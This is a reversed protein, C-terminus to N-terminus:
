EDCEMRAFLGPGFRESMQAVHIEYPGSLGDAAKQGATYTWAPTGLTIERLVQTGQQVRLLYLEYSENLPVDTGQWSDGDIRTRRLWNVMTGGAGDPQARLHAPTYPRLGNGAFALQYSQYSPDEYGRLAPGIRYQRALGRAASPLGIQRLADNILVWQSGAPWDRILPETGAQGRLRLALEYTQPAVLTAEAFQFLEWNDPSGDGIAALNAGNLVSAMSASSLVGQTLEVRLPAGRDWLHPEAAGLATRTVGSIAWGTMVTNLAFEAEGDSMYVAASGPWPDATVALHPAHPVEDGRLLPLDMFMAYVPLPAAFATMPTTERTVWPSPIYLEPEVRVAEIEQMIGQTVHDIRYREPGSDAGAGAVEIVDGAGCEARSPPLALRVTDRAVRAEALWREVIQRAEAETLVLPMDIRSVLRNEEDPFVAEHNVTEFGGQASLSTLRVRGAVEAEPACIREMLGDSGESLALQAPDIRADRRGDRSKFVLQGDREVADIGHALMLPQLLARADRMDDSSYGRLGGWLGSVDVAEVGSRACIERVVDALTRASSRGNLWHGRDYNEGDGWLDQAQPFAPWPRADWAWVHAQSMDVMRGAYLDSAPNKAPDSWYRHMAKLYQVQIFDDRQGTSARPLSSESSKPDLFKNPQNTGKDVAACGMETFWIPKSRPVWPSATAARLGGVRDHHPQSWWNRLDKVRWVWPEGYAGDTIPTRIQAAEHADHAYYWDYGEGGEINAMLYELNYISGHDADAHDEGERWDSLPMYNDIGIFDIVPDAWLPDLHYYLNGDRQCGWYESWDAAYSIKCAPGVIARVDAALARLAEVAPFGSAGRVTSLAVFESGICFAEVGGAAVCLHAYHLIMRRYSWEEPGTYTVSEGERQFDSPQAMGFFTAVESEAQATGDPSGNLGPALSTTIRGRWPLVPQGVANRWPDILLNGEMQDMLLFPYFMVSQGAAQLAQIAQVVSRDTPTGGYIGRGDGDRPVVQAQARTLGSVQWPQSDSDRDQQEVKPRIQCQDCRLDDGFWSVVLSVAGCNPLEDQLADLSTVFDPLGSAANLNAAQVQGAQGKFYVPETALAYEGTGPIMAVAGILHTLDEPDDSPDPRLVEFSFQPVRNGFPTLDLDEFVVYAMGRYAPARGAGEVAEIKADPMQDATGKYVRLTLTSLDVEAGDAWIRGVRSIEGECLAVALSVSYSYRTVRPSRPAGKGSGGGTTSQHEQFATAWIVQGGIRTRGYVQAVPAGESAGTLRFRSVRPGEVAQSGTGLLRQDLARGLGAGLARGIVVSSLGLVGGGVSAGIAGGVASLVLTAM